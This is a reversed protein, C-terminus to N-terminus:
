FSLRGDARYSALRPMTRRLAPDAGTLVVTRGGRELVLTTTQAIGSVFHM